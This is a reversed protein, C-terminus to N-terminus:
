SQAPQEAPQEEVKSKAFKDLWPKFIGPIAITDSEAIKEAAHVKSHWADFVLPLTKKGEFKYSASVTIKYASKTVSGDGIKGTEGIMEVEGLAANVASVVKVTSYGADTLSNRVVNCLNLRNPKM